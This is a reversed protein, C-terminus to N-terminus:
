LQEKKNIVENILDDQIDNNKLYERLNLVQQALEIILMSELISHESLDFTDKVFYQLNSEIRKQRRNILDKLQQNSLNM